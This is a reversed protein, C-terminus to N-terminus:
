APDHRKLIGECKDESEEQCNPLFSRSVTSPGFVKNLTQRLSETFCTAPLRRPNGRPRTRSHGTRSQLRTPRNPNCRARWSLGFVKQTTYLTQVSTSSVPSRSLTRVLAVTDGTQKMPGIAEQRQPCAGTAGAAECPSITRGCTATGPSSALRLRRMFTSPQNIAVPKPNQGLGFRLACTSLAPLFSSTV